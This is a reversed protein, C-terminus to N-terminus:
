GMLKYEVEEVEADTLPDIRLIAAVEDPDISDGVSYNKKIYNVVRRLDNQRQEYDVAMLTMSDPKGGRFMDFM